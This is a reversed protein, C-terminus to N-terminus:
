YLIGKYKDDIRTMYIFLIINLDEKAGIGSIVTFIGIYDNSYMVWNQTIFKWVM